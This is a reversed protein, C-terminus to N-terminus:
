NTASSIRDVQISYSIATPIVLVALGAPTLADLLM